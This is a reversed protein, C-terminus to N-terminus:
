FWTTKIVICKVVYSSAFSVKWMSRFIHFTTHHFSTDGTHTSFNLKQISMKKLWLQYHLFTKGSLNVMAVNCEAIVDISTRKPGIKGSQFDQNTNREQCGVSELNHWVRVMVLQDIMLLCFWFELCLRCSVFCCVKIFIFKSKQGNGNCMFNNLVSWNQNDRGMLQEYIHQNLVM